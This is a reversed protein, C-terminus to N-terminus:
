PFRMKGSFHKGQKEPLDQFVDLTVLLKMVARRGWLRHISNGSRRKCQKESLFAGFLPLAYLGESIQHYEENIVALLAARSYLLHFCGEQIVVLKFLFQNGM